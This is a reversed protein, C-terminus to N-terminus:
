LRATRTKLLLDLANRTAAGLVTNDFICSGHLRFYVLGPWGGPEGAAPVRAPDAAVRAVELEILTEEAEPTFWSAHRPECVLFAIGLTDGVLRPQFDRLALVRGLQDLVDDLSAPPGPRAPAASCGPESRGSSAGLRGPLAETRRSVDERGGSRSPPPASRSPAPGSGSPAKGLQIAAAGMWTPSVGM